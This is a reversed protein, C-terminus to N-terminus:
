APSSAVGTLEGLTKVSEGAGQLAAPPPPLSQSIALTLYRAANDANLGRAVVERTLEPYNLQLAGHVVNVTLRVKDLTLAASAASSFIHRDLDEAYKELTDFGCPPMTYAVGGLDIQIGAILREGM